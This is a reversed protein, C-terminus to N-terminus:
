AVSCTIEHEQFLSGGVLMEAVKLRRVLMVVESETLLRELLFRVDKKTKLAAFVESLQDIM